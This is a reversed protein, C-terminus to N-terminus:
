DSGWWVAPAILFSGFMVCGFVLFTIAGVTGREFLLSLLVFSCGFIIGFLVMGFRVILHNEEDNLFGKIKEYNM